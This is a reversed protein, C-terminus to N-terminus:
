TFNWYHLPVKVQTSYKQVREVEPHWGYWLDRGAVLWFLRGLAETETCASFFSPVSYLAFVRLWVVDFLWTRLLKRATFECCKYYGFHECTQLVRQKGTSDCTSYIGGEKRVCLVMHKPTRHFYRSPPPARCMSSTPNVPGATNGLTSQPLRQSMLPSSLRVSRHASTDSRAAQQIDNFSCRRERVSDTVLGSLLCVGLDFVHPSCVCVCVCVCVIGRM